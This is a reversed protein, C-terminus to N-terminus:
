STQCQATVSSSASPQLSRPPSSASTSSSTSPQLSRPPSSLFPKPPIELTELSGELMELVKSMSPRSLPNTQICWLGVIIMKKAAQEREDTMIGHLGLDQNLKIRDYIRHPFYLQSLHDIGVNVDINKRGGVMELIMMGYSYVDSKNSIGGFNRNFVEPAIYGATGRARSMSIISEKELCLKALGFDSIKAHFDKDLLINHPKIDFHVIRTTCGRHLYELGRAIEIAVRYFTEWGFVLDEESIALKEGFIFKELSGNPMFEYILARKNRKDFCFGLLAVINVHSTRSISAVENFFELGANKTKMNRFLVKVAVLRGDHLKGKFVSGYGGQGLKEKFSNTMKKVDKFSYRKPALSGHTKFFAELGDRSSHKKRLFYIMIPISLIIGLAGFAGVVGISIKKLKKFKAAPSTVSPPNLCADRISGDPCFCTPIKETTNSGCTGGSNRCRLCMGIGIDSEANFYTVNFGQKIVAPLIEPNTTLDRLATLMVPTKVTKNCSSFDPPVGPAMDFWFYADRTPSGYILCKFRFTLQDPIKVCDSYLTLQDVDQALKFDVSDFNPIPYEFPCAGYSEYGVFATNTINMVKTETNIELVRYSEGSIVIQAVDGDLCDLRYNLLGCYEPRSKDGISYHRGWFPYGVDVSDGCVFKRQCKEYRELNNEQAICVYTHFMLILFFIISFKSPPAMIFNKFQHYFILLMYSM